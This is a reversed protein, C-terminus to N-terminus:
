RVLELIGIDGAGEEVLKGKRAVLGDPMLASSLALPETLRMSQPSM